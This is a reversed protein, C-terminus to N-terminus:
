HRSSRFPSAPLGDGNVLNAEPACAWAYRVYLPQAVSPSSVRVTAGEITATAALYKGDAGALEFGELPGGKAALGAAHDFYVLM